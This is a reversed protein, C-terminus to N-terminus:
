RAGAWTAEDIGYALRLQEDAGALDGAEAAAVSGRLAPGDPPLPMPALFATKMRFYGGRLPVGVMDLWLRVAPSRLLVLLLWPSRWPPPAGPRPRVAYASDLVFSGRDLAARGRAAVDPIVVKPDPSLLLRLNQPRGLQYFAPGAFRGRERAELAARHAAFYAALAPAEALLEPWPLLLPASDGGDDLGRYPLLCYDAAATAGELATATAPPTAPPALAAPAAATAGDARPAGDARTAGTAAGEIDRGRLCRRALKAEVRVRAGDGNVGELWAGRLAGRVVFIRDANTGCGKAIQAVEGLTRSAADLQAFASGARLIWPAGGLEPLAAARAVWGGPGLRALQASSTPRGREVVVVSAYTTAGPFLQLAGFDVVREVSSAMKERLQRAFAATLWRSPVVLGGRGGPRLWELTRELFPAYLDWEGHSTAAFRQRLAQWLEPDQAHLHISRLYPPNGLVADVEADLPEGLLAEGQRVEVALELGRAAAGAALQELRLRAAAATRADREIGILALGVGPLQRAVWEAAVVLFRGDGCAPDLVRLSRGPAAAAARAALPRLTEEVVFHVLPRPTFFAGRSRVEQRQGWPAADGQPEDVLPAAAVAAAAAAAAAAAPPPGRRRLQQTLAELAALPTEGGREDGDREDGGREDGDGHGRAGGEGEPDRGQQDSRRM